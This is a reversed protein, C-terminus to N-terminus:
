QRWKQRDPTWACSLLCSWEPDQQAAILTDALAPAGGLSVGAESNVQDTAPNLDKHTLVLAAAGQQTHSSAVM